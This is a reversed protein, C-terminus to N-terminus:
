RRSSYKPLTIGLLGMVLLILTGPEPLSVLSEIATLRGIEFSEQTNNGGLQSSHTLTFSTFGADNDAYGFFGAGVGPNLTLTSNLAIQTASNGASFYVLPADDNLANYDFSIANFIGPLIFTFIQPDSIDNDLVLDLESGTISSSSLGDDSLTEFASNSDICFDNLSNSSGQSVNVTIGSGSLSISQTISTTAAEDGFGEDVLVNAPNTLSSLWADRNPKVITASVNSVLFQLVIFIGVIKSSRAKLAM